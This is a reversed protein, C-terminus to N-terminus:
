ADTGLSQVRQVRRPPLLDAILRSRSFGRVSSCLRSRRWTPPLEQPSWPPQRHRQPINLQLHLRLLRPHIDSPLLIQLRIQVAGRRPTAYTPPPIPKAASLLLHLKVPAVTVLRFRRFAPEPLLQPGLQCRFKRSCALDVDDHEGLGIM